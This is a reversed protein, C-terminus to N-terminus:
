NVLEGFCYKVIGNTFYDAMMLAEAQIADFTKVEEAYQGGLNQVAENTTLRLHEYMMKRVENEKYYPNISAFMQAIQDSNKHWEIELKNVKATDGMKAATVIDGGQKLHTTFLDIIQQRARIGFYPAFLNAMDTPNQLLRATYQDNGPLNGIIGLIVNRTWWVHEMWIRQMDQTLKERQEKIHKCQNQM